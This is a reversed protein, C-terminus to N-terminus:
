IKFKVYSVVCLIMYAIFIFWTKEFTLLIPNLGAIIKGLSTLKKEKDVYMVGGCDAFGQLNFEM